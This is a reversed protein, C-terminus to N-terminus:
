LSAGHSQELSLVLKGGELRHQHLPPDDDDFATGAYALRRQQRGRGLARSLEPV